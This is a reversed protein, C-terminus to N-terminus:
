SIDTKNLEILGTVFDESVLGYGLFRGAISRGDSSLKGYLTGFHIANNNKNVYDVKLIHGDYVTNIIHAQISDETQCIVDECNVKFNLRMMGVIPSSKEQFRVILGHKHCVQKKGTKQDMIGVWEGYLSDKRAIPASPIYVSQRKQLLYNGIIPSIVAALITALAGILGIFIAINM